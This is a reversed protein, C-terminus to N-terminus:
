QCNSELLIPSTRSFMCPCFGLTVRSELSGGHLLGTAEDSKTNGMGLVTGVAYYVSLPHKNQLYVSVLVFMLSVQPVLTM